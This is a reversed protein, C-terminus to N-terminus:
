LDETFNFTAIVSSNDTGGVLLKVCLVVTDSDTYDINSGMNLFNLATKVDGTFTGQAYGGILTIGGTATTGSVYDFMRAAKGVNSPAPTASTTPNLVLRWQFIGSNQPNLNGLDVLQLANVQIDARQYPEGARIGLGLIAYEKGVDTNKNFLVSVATQAIGFSPNIGATTEVNVASGGITMRPTYDPVGTNVIEKRDMIGPASEFQTGTVPDLYNHLVYKHDNYQLSFRIRGTRSGRFDFLFVNTDHFPTHTLRASSVSSYTGPYQNYVVNARSNGADVATVLGCGNFGTPSVGTITYKDGVKVNAINGSINYQVRYVTGDGIIAVNSQSNVGSITETVTDTNWNLGSPGTGDLRDLNFDSRKTRTEVLTGDTMRKRVVCYLDDTVEFFIGNYNTFLGMRKAVNADIGDWNIVGVWETSVGPYTKFRRRTARIATGTLSANANYTLGPTIEVSALNQVFISQAGTGIFKEQLRLDGDKDVTPVYWWQQGGTVVRLRDTPDMQVTDAFYVAAPVNAATSMTVNGTVVWPSTGQTVSVNGTVAPLTTIGSINGTVSVPPMSTISVNSPFNDVSVNGYVHVNGTVAPMRSIEVNGSVGVNGTIGPMDTIRINSPFNAVTITGDTIRVNGILNTGADLRVNGAVPMWPVTLIGSTGIETIHSHIPDDPSSFVQVIGPILVNGSITFANAGLNVRLEPEGTGYRYQLAREVSLLNTEQPHQYDTTNQRADFRGPTPAKYSM